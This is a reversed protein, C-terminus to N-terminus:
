SISPRSFKKHFLSTSKPRKLQGMNDFFDTKKLQTWLFNLNPINEYNKLEVINWWWRIKLLSKILMQNNGKGVHCRYSYANKEPPINVFLNNSFNIVQLYDRYSAQRVLPQKEAKMKLIYQDDMYLPFQSKANNKDIIVKKNSM